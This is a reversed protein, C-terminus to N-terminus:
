LLAPLKVAVKVTVQLLPWVPLGLWVMVTVFAWGGNAVTVILAVVGSAENSEGPTKVIVRVPSM